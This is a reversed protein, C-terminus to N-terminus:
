CAEITNASIQYNIVIGCQFIKVPKARGFSNAAFQQNKFVIIQLAEIAKLQVMAGMGATDHSHIFVPLSVREKLARVLEFTAYPTLLGAMDKIALSDVGLAAM